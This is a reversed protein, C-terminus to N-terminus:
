WVYGIGLNIGDVITFNSYGTPSSIQYEINFYYESWHYQYGGGIIPGSTKITRNGAYKTRLTLTVWEFGAGWIWSGNQGSKEPLASAYMLRTISASTSTVEHIKSGDSFFFSKSAKDDVEMDGDGGYGEFKFSKWQFGIGLLSYILNVVKESSGKLEATKSDFLLLLSIDAGSWDPLKFPTTKTGTFNEFEVKESGDPEIRITKTESKFNGDEARLSHRVNAPVEFNRVISGNMSGIYNDELMIRAQKHESPVRVILRGPKPKLTINKTGLNKKNIRLTETVVEYKGLEL